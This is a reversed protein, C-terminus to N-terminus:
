VDEDEEDEECITRALKFIYKADMVDSKYYDEDIVRKWLAHPIELTVPANASAAFPGCSWVLYVNGTDSRELEILCVDIPHHYKLVDDLQDQLDHLRQGIDERPKAKLTGCAIEETGDYLAYGM